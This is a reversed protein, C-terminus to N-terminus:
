GGRNKDKQNQGTGNRIWEEAEVREIVFCKIMMGPARETPTFRGIRSASWEGGDPATTLPHKSSHRWEELVDHRPAKNIV